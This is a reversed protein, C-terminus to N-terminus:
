IREKKWNINNKVVKAPVGAIIVNPEIFQKTVVSGTGIVSNEPILVGKNICVRHGIWVHDKIIIDAAPNVRQGLLDVISHSDGTRFVIESSFLCNDGIIIKKGETCALHITGCLNCEDGISICNNDDEICIDGNTINTREGVEIVNNTGRIVISTNRLVGGEHFIITNGSKSIIRCGLLIKGSNVIKTERIKLNNNFPLANILKYCRLIIKKISARM